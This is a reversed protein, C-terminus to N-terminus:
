DGFLDDMEDAEAPAPQQPAECGCAACSPLCCLWSCISSCSAAFEPAGRSGEQLFVEIEGIEIDDLDICLGPREITQM